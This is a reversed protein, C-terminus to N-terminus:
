RTREARIRRLKREAAAFLLPPRMTGITHTWWVSSIGRLASEKTLCILRVFLWCMSIPLYLHTNTSYIIKPKPDQDENQLDVDFVDLAGICREDVGLLEAWLTQLAL